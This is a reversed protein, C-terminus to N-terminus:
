AVLMSLNRASGAVHTLVVATRRLFAARAVRRVIHVVAATAVVAGVTVRDGAPLRRFEIVTPLGSESKFSRVGMNAAGIAM